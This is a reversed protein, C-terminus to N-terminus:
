KAERFWYFKKRDATPKIKYGNAFVVKGQRLWLFCEVAWVNGALWGPNKEKLRVINELTLRM